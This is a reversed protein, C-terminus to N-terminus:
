EFVETGSLVLEIDREERNVVSDVHFVRGNFDLRTHTSIGPHFRGIFLIAGGSGGSSDIACDWTAPDMPPAGAPGLLTVVHRYQGVSM